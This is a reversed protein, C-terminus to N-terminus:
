ITITATNSPRHDHKRHEELDLTSPFTKQCRSCELKPRPLQKHIKVVMQERM